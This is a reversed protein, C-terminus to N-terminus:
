EAYAYAARNIEDLLINLSPLKEDWELLTPVKGFRAIAQDYLEWVEQCVHNDHTDILLHSGNELHQKTHGAIHIEKVLESPIAQIYQETDWQHNHCSVYINNVDLLIKAGTKKCLNILFDVEALKSDKFELYSSPNEILLERQLYDQAQNINSTFIELTQQNYPVPLLDPLYMGGITSWSLHESVLFPDIQTILEKIYQLQSKQLGDASGLSLGVGHLSMPYSQRIQLVNQLNASGKHLYNESIIEFWAIQPQQELVAAFHERRLGIGLM